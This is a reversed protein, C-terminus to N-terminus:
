YQIMLRQSYKRKRHGGGTARAATGSGDVSANECSASVRPVCVGRWDGVPIGVIKGINTMRLYTVRIGDDVARCGTRPVGQVM